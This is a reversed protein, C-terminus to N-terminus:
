RSIPSNQTLEYAKNYLHMTHKQIISSVPALLEDKASNTKGKRTFFLREEKSAVFKRAEFHHNQLARAININKGDLNLFHVVSQLQLKPDKHMYEYCLLCYNKPNKEYNKLAEQMHNIWNRMHLLCFINIGLAVEPDKKPNNKNRLFHFYSCLADDAKRFIYITKRNEADINEHSKIVRFPLKFQASISEDIDHTYISPIVKYYEIPLNTNTEYNLSQLILDAILYRCWTNGSRPFSVLIIDQSTLKQRNNGFTIFKSSYCNFMEVPAKLNTLCWSLAKLRFILM